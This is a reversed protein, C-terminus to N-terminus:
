EAGFPDASRGLGPGAISVHYRLADDCSIVVAKVLDGGAFTAAFDVKSPDMEGPPLADERRLAARAPFDVLAGDAAVVDLNVQMAGVRSVTGVVVTGVGIAPRSGARAVRVVGDAGVTLSGVLSAVIAGDRVYTGAGSTQTTTSGVVDGPVVIPPAAAMAAM